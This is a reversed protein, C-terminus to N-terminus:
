TNSTTVSAYKFMSEASASPAPTRGLDLAVYSLKIGWSRGQPEYKGRYHKQLFPKFKNLAEQPTTSARDLSTVVIVDVDTLANGNSPRVATSRRYSGQIFTDVIIKSLDEDELLRKRLTSHGTVCDQVQADTLRIESLFDSFYSPTAVM